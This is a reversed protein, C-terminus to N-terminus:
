RGSWTTRLRSWCQVRSTRGNCGREIREKVPKVADSVVDDECVRVGDLEVAGVELLALAALNADREVAVPGHGIVIPWLTRLGGQNRTKNPRM